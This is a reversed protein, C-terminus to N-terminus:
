PPSQLTLRSVDDKKGKMSQSCVPCADVQKDKGNGRGRAKGPKPLFRTPRDEYDDPEEMGMGEDDGEDWEMTLDISGGRSKGALNEVEPQEIGPMEMGLDEDGEPDLTDNDDGSDRTPNDDEDFMGPHQSDADIDIDMDGDVDIRDDHPDQEEDLDIATNIIKPWAPPAQFDPIQAFSPRPAGNEAVHRSGAPPPSCSRVPPSRSQSRSPGAGPSSPVDCVETPRAVEPVIRQKKLNSAAGVDGEEDSSIVVPDASTDGGSAREKGKRSSKGNKVGNATNSLMIPKVDGMTSGYDGNHCQNVAQDSPTKRFFSSIDATKGIKAVGNAKKPTSKTM